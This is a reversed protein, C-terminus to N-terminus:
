ARFTVSQRSPRTALRGKKSGKSPITRLTASTAPPEVVAVHTSELSANDLQSTLSVVPPASFSVAGTSANENLHKHYLGAIYSHSRAQM